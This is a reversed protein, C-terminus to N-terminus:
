DAVEEGSVSEEAAEEETEEPIEEPMEETMEEPIEEPMEQDAATEVAFDEYEAGAASVALDDEAFSPLAMGALLGACLVCVAIRKGPDRRFSM